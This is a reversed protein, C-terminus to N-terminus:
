PEIVELDAVKTKQNVKVRAKQGARLRFTGNKSVKFDKRKSKINLKAFKNIHRIKIKIEGKEVAYNETQVDSGSAEAIADNLDVSYKTGIATTECLPTGVDSGESEAGYGEELPDTIKKRHEGEFVVKGQHVIILSKGPVDSFNNVTLKSNEGITLDQASPM